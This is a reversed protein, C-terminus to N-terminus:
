ICFRNMQIITVHSSKKLYFFVYFFTSSTLNLSALNSCHSISSIIYLHWTYSINLQFWPWNSFNSNNTTTQHARSNSCWKKNAVNRNHELFYVRLKQLPSLFCYCTLRKICSSCKKLFHEEGHAQAKSNDKFNFKYTVKSTFRVVKTVPLRSPRIFFPESVFSLICLAM